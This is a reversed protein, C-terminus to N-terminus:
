RRCRTTACPTMSMASVAPIAPWAPATAMCTICLRICRPSPRTRLQAATLVWGRLAMPRGWFKALSQSPYALPTVHSRAAAFEAKEESSYDAGMALPDAEAITESLALTPLDPGVALSVKSTLDGGHPGAYAYDHHVDLVAQLAIRGAPLEAPYALAQLDVDVAGGASLDSVEQAAVRVDGPQLENVDLRAPADGQPMARMMVLLRGSVAHSASAPLTVRIFRHQPAAGMLLFITGALMLFRPKKRTAILLRM